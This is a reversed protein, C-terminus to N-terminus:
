RRKGKKELKVEQWLQDFDTYLKEEKPEDIYVTVKEDKWPKKEDEEQKWGWFKPKSPFSVCTKVMDRISDEDVESDDDVLELETVKKDEMKYNSLKGEASIAIECHPRSGANNVVISYCFGIEIKEKMEAPTSLIKEIENKAKDIGLSPAFKTIDIKYSMDPSGEEGKIIFTDGEWLGSVRPATGMSKNVYGRTNNSTTGLLDMTNRDDTGSHFTSFSAHNHIWGVIKYNTGNRVNKNDLEDVAKRVYHGDVRVFSGGVEQKEPLIFDLAVRPNSADAVLLGYWEYSGGGVESVMRSVMAAKYILSKKATVKAPVYNWPDWEETMPKGLVDDIDDFEM